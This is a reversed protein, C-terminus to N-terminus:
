PIVFQMGSHNVVTNEKDDSIGSDDFFVLKASFKIRLFIFTCKIAIPPLAM